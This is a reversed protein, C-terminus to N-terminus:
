SMTKYKLFEPAQGVWIMYEALNKDGTYDAKYWVDDKQWKLQNGKSSRWGNENLDRELLEVM